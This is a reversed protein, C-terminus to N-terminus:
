GHHEWCGEAFRDAHLDLLAAVAEDRTLVYPRPGALREGGLAVEVTAPEGSLDVSTLANATRSGATATLIFAEPGGGIMVEWLGIKLTTLSRAAGDLEDITRAFDEHTMDEM